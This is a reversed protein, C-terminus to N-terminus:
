LFPDSVIGFCSDISCNPHSVDEKPERKSHKTGLQYAPGVSRSGAQKVAGLTTQNKETQGATSHPSEPILQEMM